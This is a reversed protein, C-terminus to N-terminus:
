SSSALAVATMGGVVQVVGIRASAGGKRATLVDGERDVQCGGRVLLTYNFDIVDGPEAATM